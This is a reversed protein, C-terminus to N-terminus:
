AGRVRFGTRAAPQVLRSFSATNSPASRVSNTGTSVVAVLNATYDGIPLAFLAGTNAGTDHVCLRGANTPDDWILYRPNVNGVGGPDTAVNCTVATALFGYTSSSAGTINLEYNTPTPTQAYANVSILLACTVLFLKM